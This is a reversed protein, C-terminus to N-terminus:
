LCEPIHLQELRYDIRGWAQGKRHMGQENAHTAEAFHGIRADAGSVSFRGLKDGSVNCTAINATWFVM